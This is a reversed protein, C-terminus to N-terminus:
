QGKLVSVGLNDAHDGIRELNRLTEIFLIDAQPSCVGAELRRRHSERLEKEMIDIDGEVQRVRRAATKDGSELASVALTWNQCVLDHFRAVESEGQKSFKVQEQAREQGAQALNVAMDAVREMDTIAHKLEFCRQREEETVPGRTLTDIYQETIRCLADIQDDERQLIREIKTEDSRLLADLSWDVMEATLRGIRMVEKTAQSLAISPVVLLNDDLFQTVKPPEKDEGPVLLTAARVILPVFPFLIVSVTINFISHANAIQRGLNTSTRSLFDAFPYIFPLFLAVGFLNILIQAVSARRSSLSSHLAAALGTFCTGINAGLILAIAGPLSIASSLGLAITLGTTAASSHILATLIAGGIVGLLPTASMTTLWSRVQPVEALPTVGAKVTELGLFIIGLGLVATGVAQWQKEPRLTRIGYGVILLAFLFKGVDFAILQGTLTTGIEQGMMVGVAQELTFLRANILGIMTVMLLSSSQLIATAVFGFGAAKLRRNTLRELWTQIRRGAVQETGTSLMDIGFLLVALGGLMQLLYALIM